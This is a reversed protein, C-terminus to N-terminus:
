LKQFPNKGPVKHHKLCRAEYTEEGMGEVVIIPSDYNAPEGKILRQTRTARGRCRPYQCVAVLKKVYDAMALLHPMPGFPEGRFDLDLGSTIVNVERRMLEEVVDTIEAPFFQVEDIAILECGDSHKLLDEPNNTTLCQEELGNFRTKISTDRTDQAPKFFKYKADEQYRLKEVRHILALTKGSKMPGCYVELIGPRIM